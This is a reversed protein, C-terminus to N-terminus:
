HCSIQDDRLTQAFLVCTSEFLIRRGQCKLGEIQTHGLVFNGADHTRAAAALRSQEVHNGPELLGSSAGQGHPAHRDLSWTGLATHDKLLRSQKWPELDPVVHDHPRFQAPDVSGLKLAIGLTHEFAYSKGSELRMVRILQRAAHALAHLDCPYQDCTGVHDQHVLGKAREICLRPDDHVLNQQADPRLVLWRDEEDRM